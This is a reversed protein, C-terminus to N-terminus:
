GFPLETDDEPNIVSLMFPMVDWVVPFGSESSYISKDKSIDNFSMSSQHFLM